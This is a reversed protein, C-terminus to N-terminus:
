VTKLPVNTGGGVQEQWPKAVDARAYAIQNKGVNGTDYEFFQGDFPCEDLSHIENEGKNGPKNSKLFRCLAM